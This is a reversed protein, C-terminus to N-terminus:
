AVEPAPVVMIANALAAGIAIEQRNKEILMTGGPLRQLCKIFEGQLIGLRILQAKTRGDPVEVVRVRRGRAITTLPVSDSAQM